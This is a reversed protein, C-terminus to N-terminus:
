EFVNIIINKTTKMDYEKATEKAKSVMKDLKDNSLKSFEIFRNKLLLDMKIIRLM